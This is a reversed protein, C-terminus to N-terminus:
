QLVSKNKETQSWVNLPETRKRRDGPVASNRRKRPSNQHHPLGPHFTGGSNTRSSRVLLETCRAPGSHQQTDKSRKDKKPKVRLFTSSHTSTHLLPPHRDKMEVGKGSFPHSCIHTAKQFEKGWVLRQPLIRKNWKYFDQQRPSSDCSRFQVSLESKWLEPMWELVSDQITHNRLHRWFSCSAMPGM